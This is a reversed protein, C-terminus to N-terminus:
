CGNWIIPSLSKIVETWIFILNFNIDYAGSSNLTGLTGLQHSRMTLSTGDLSGELYIVDSHKRWDGWWGGRFHCSYVRKRQPSILMRLPRLARLIWFPSPWRSKRTMLGEAWDRQAAPTESGPGVADRPSQLTEFHLAGSIPQLDQSPSWKRTLLICTHGRLTRPFILHSWRHVTNLWYLTRCM